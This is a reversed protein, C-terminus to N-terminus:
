GGDQYRESFLCERSLESLQILSSDSNSKGSGSSGLLKGVRYQGGVCLFDVQIPLKVSVKWHSVALVM